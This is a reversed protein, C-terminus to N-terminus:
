FKKKLDPWREKQWQEIAQEDRQIARRAPKQLSWGIRRMVKSIHARHYSVGFERRIVEAVRATTWIDGAFGFAEAGRQLLSPLQAHQAETM